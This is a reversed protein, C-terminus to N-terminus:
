LPVRIQIRGPIISFETDITFDSVYSGIYFGIGAGLLVDSFWHMNHYIRAAGVLGAATYWGAEWFFNDVQKAMVTSVAFALTTHASGFSSRVPQRKFPHFSLNDDTDLPRIRGSIYKIVINTIGSYIAAEGLDIGLQRIKNDSSFFGYFYTGASILVASEIYYYRDINFLHKNFASQNNRSFQKSEDDLLFGGSVLLITGGLNILDKKDFSLPASVIEKGTVFFTGIDNLLTDGTQPFVLHTFFILFFSFYFKL